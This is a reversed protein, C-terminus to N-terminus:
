ASTRSSALLFRWLLYHNIDVHTKKKLRASELARAPRVPDRRPRDEEDLYVSAGDDGAALSRGDPHWIVSPIPGV